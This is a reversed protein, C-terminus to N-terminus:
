FDTRFSRLESFPPMRPAAPRSYNRVLKPKGVARISSTSLTRSCRGDTASRTSTSRQSCDKSYHQPRDTSVFNRMTTIWTSRTRRSIHAYGAAIGFKDDPRNTASVSSSSARTLVVISPLIAIGGARRFNQWIDRRRSRRHEAGSLYGQQEFVAWGGMDRGAPSPHRQELARGIVGQNSAFLQDQFAGFGSDDPLTAMARRTTGPTRLQGLLLPPIM